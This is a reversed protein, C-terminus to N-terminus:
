HRGGKPFVVVDGPALDVAPGDLLKVVCRGATVLHYPVVHDAGPTLAEAIARSSPALISWPARLESAFFAAGTLRTTKLIESLADMGRGKRRIRLPDVRTPRLLSVQHARGRYHGNCEFHRLPIAIRGSNLRASCTTGRKVARRSM